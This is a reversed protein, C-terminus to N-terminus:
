SKSNVGNGPGPSAEGGHRDSVSGAEGGESSAATQSASYAMLIDLLTATPALHALEGTSATISPAPAKGPPQPSPPQPSLPQNLMRLSAGQRGQQPRATRLNKRPRPAPYAAVPRAPTVAKRKLLRGTSAIVPAAVPPLSARPSAPSSVRPSRPARTAGPSTSSVRRMAGVLWDVADFWPWAGKVITGDAKAQGWRTLFLRLLVGDCRHHIQAVVAEPTRKGGKMDEVIFNLAVAKFITLCAAIQVPKDGSRALLTRLMDAGPTDKCFWHLEVRRTSDGSVLTNPGTRALLASRSRLPRNKFSRKTRTGALVEVANRVQGVRVDSDLSVGSGARLTRVARRGPSGLKKLREPTVNNAAQALAARVALRELGIEERNFLRRIVSDRGAQAVLTTGDGAGRLRARDGAHELVAQLNRCHMAQAPNQITVTKAAAARLPQKPM